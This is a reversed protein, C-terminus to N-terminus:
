RRLVMRIGRRWSEAMGVRIVEMETTLYSLLAESTPHFRLAPAVLYVLSPTPQLELGPFYGYRAFHGEAQHRRVRQGYDAAQLPLDPNESAKLELIALRRSRTVTM